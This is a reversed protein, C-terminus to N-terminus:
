GVVQIGTMSSTTLPKPEFSMISKLISDLVYPNLVHQAVTVEINRLQTKTFERIWVGDELRWDDDVISLMGLKDQIYVRSVPLSTPLVIRLKYTDSEVVGCYIM